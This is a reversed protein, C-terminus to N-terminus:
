AKVKGTAIMHRYIEREVAYPRLQIPNRDRLARVAKESGCAENAVTSDPLNPMGVSGAVNFIKENGRDHEVDVEVRRVSECEESGSGVADDDSEMADIKTRLFSVAIEGEHWKMRARLNAQESEFEARRILVDPDPGPLGILGRERLDSLTPKRVTGIIELDSETTPPNAM